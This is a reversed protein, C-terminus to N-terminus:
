YNSSPQLRNSGSVIDHFDSHYTSGKGIAYLLPDLFGLTARGAAVAQQNVLAMFGAWRPAAFSTGGAGPQCTGM